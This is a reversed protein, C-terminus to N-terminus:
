CEIGAVASASKDVFIESSQVRVVCVRGRCVRPEARSREPTSVYIERDPAKGKLLAANGSLSTFPHNPTHYTDGTSRALKGAKGLLEGTGHNPLRSPM